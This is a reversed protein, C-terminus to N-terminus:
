KKTACSARIRGQFVAGSDYHAEMTGTMDKDHFHTVMHLLTVTRGPRLVSQFPGAETVMSDGGSAVIRVPVPALNPLKMMASKGDPAMFLQSTVLVSDSSSAVTQIRWMTCKSGQASAAPGGALVLLLFLGLSVARPVTQSASSPASFTRALRPVRFVSRPVATGFETNRTGLEPATPPEQAPPTLLILGRMEGAPNNVTHFNVYARNSKILAYLSDFSITANTTSRESITGNVAM